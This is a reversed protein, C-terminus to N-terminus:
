FASDLGSPAPPPCQGGGSARGRRGAGGETRGERPGRTARGSAREGPAREAETLRSPQRARPTSGFGPSSARSPAPPQSIPERWRAPGSGSHGLHAALPHRCPLDSAVHLLLERARLLLHALGIGPRRATRAVQGGEGGWPSTRVRSGASDGGSSRQRPGEPTWLSRGGANQAGRPDADETEGGGAPASSPAATGEGGGGAAGGAGGVGLKTDEEDTQLSSAAWARRPARPGTFGARSASPGSAPLRPPAGLGGAGSPGRPRPRRQPSPTQGKHGLAERSRSDRPQGEARPHWRALELGRPVEQARRERRGLRREVKQGRRGFSPDPKREQSTGSAQVSRGPGQPACCQAGRPSTGEDSGPSRTEPPQPPLPPEPKPLGGGPHPAPGFSSPGCRPRPPRRLFGSGETGLAVPLLRLPHLWPKGQCGSLAPFATNPPPPGCGNLKRDWAVEPENFQIVGAASAM